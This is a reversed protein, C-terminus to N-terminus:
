LKFKITILRLLYLKNKSVSITTVEVMLLITHYDELIEQELYAISIMRELFEYMM